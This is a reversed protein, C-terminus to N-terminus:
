SYTPTENEVRNPKHKVKKEGSSQENKEKSEQPWLTQRSPRNTKRVVPYGLLDGTFRLSRSGGAGAM